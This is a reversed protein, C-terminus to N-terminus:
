YQIKLNTQICIVIIVKKCSQDEIVEKRGPNYKKGEPYSKMGGRYNMKPIEKSMLQMTETVKISVITIM